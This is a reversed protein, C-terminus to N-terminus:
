EDVAESERAERAASVYYPRLVILASGVEFVKEFVQEPIDARRGQVEADRRLTDIRKFRPLTEDRTKGAQLSGSLGRAATQLMQVTEKLQYAANANALNQIGIQNLSDELGACATVLNEAYKTVRDQDWKALQAHAAVAASLAVALAAAVFGRVM